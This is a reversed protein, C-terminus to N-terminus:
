FVSFCLVGSVCFFLLIPSGFCLYWIVICFLVFVAPRIRHLCCGFYGWFCGLISLITAGFGGLVRISTQGFSVNQVLRFGPRFM